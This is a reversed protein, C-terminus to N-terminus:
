KRQRRSVLITRFLPIFNANHSCRCERQCLSMSISQLKRATEAM